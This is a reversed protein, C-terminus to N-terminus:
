SIADNLHRSSISISIRSWRKKGVDSFHCCSHNTTDIEKDSQRSQYTPLGRAGEGGGEKGGETSRRGRPRHLRVITSMTQLHLSYYRTRDRERGNNDYVSILSFFYFLYYNSSTFYTHLSHRSPKSETGSTGYLDVRGAM